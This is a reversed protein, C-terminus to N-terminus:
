TASYCVDWLILSIKKNVNESKVNSGYLSFSFFFFSDYKYITVKEALESAEDM